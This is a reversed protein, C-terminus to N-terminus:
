DDEGDTFDDEIIDEDDGNFKSHIIDNVLEKEDTSCININNIDLFNRLNDKVFNEQNFTSTLKNQVLESYMQLLFQTFNLMSSPKILRMNPLDSSIDHRDNFILYTDFTYSYTKNNTIFQFTNWGTKEDYKRTIALVYKKIGNYLWDLNINNWKLSLSLNFYITEPEYMLDFDDLGQELLESVEINASGTCELDNLLMDVKTNSPLTNLVLYTPQISLQWYGDRKEFRYLFSDNSLKIFAKNEKQLKMWLELNNM